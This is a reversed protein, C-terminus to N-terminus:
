NIQNTLKLYQINFSLVMEWVAMKISFIQLYFLARAITGTIEVYYYM